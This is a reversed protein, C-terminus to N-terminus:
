SSVAVLNGSPISSIGPDRDLARRALGLYFDELEIGMTQLCRDFGAGTSIDPNPNVELIMPKGSPRVRFDVRAYDRCGLLRFARMALDQIKEQLRPSLDAPCRPPTLRCEESDTHWKAAYTLIPWGSHGDEFVIEAPPLPRLEPDEMLAVNFERGDIFEEVLAPSGYEELVRAVRDQLQRQNTVVSGQDLGVSADFRAPKVIVPWSLTCRPAPLERVVLFNPTPLGAGVLLQKTLHKSLALSLSQYPSGTFPVRLWELIGAVFAETEGNVYSGEYLNFVADPQRRRLEAVLLQPDERLAFLTARLGANTLSEQVHRAHDIVSHEALADPHDESLSPYNYMVLVHPRAM